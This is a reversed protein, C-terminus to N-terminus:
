VRKESKKLRRLEVKLQYYRNKCIIVEKQLEKIKSVLERWRHFLEKSEDEIGKISRYFTQM